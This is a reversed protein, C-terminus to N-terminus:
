IVSEISRAASEQLRSMAQGTSSSRSSLGKSSSVSRHPPAVLARTNNARVPCPSVSEATYFFQLSCVIAAELNLLKPQCLVFLCSLFLFSFAREEKELTAPGRERGRLGLLSSTPLPFYSICLGLEWFVFHLFFLHTKYPWPLTLIFPWPSTLFFPWPLTLCTPVHGLLPRQLCVGSVARCGLRGILLQCSARATWDPASM